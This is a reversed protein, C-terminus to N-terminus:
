SPGHVVENDPLRLGMLECAMKFEELDLWRKLCPLNFM